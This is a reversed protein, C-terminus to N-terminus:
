SVPLCSELKVIFEKKLKVTCVYTQLPCKVKFVVHFHASLRNYKHVDQSVFSCHVIEMSTHKINIHTYRKRGIFYVSLFIYIM